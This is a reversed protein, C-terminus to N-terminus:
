ASIRALERDVVALASEPTHEGLLLSETLGRALLFLTSAEHEPDVGAALEGKERAGVLKQTLGEVAMRNSARYSERMEPDGVARVLFASGVLADTRGEDDLPLIGVLMARVLTLPSARDAEALYTGIREDVRLYLLTATFALLEDRSAFYHQVRGKSVGAEDAVRSLSVAELGERAAIRWLAEAIEGRRQGHDVVRPM